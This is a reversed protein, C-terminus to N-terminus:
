VVQFALLTLDDAPNLSGDRTDLHLSIAEIMADLELSKWRHLEDTFVPAGDNDERQAVLADELGDTYYLVKDGPELRVTQEFFESALDPLGILGGGPKLEEISGDAGVRLPYPHGGRALRLERRAVDVVGYVATVYQSHPLQQRAIDAHLGALVECPSIVDYRRGVIRKPVLARRVFMTMLAASTGHGMVDGLFLGIHGEDIRFVDYLDGSVWSAPRYLVSFKLGKQEPLQRPLFDRQLRGALRMEQDIEGFFRNLHLSLRQLHTLEDDLRRVLSAFHAMTTLRGAIEDASASSSAQEVLPGAPAACGDAGWVLLAMRRANLEEAVRDLDLAPTPTTEDLVLVAADASPLDTLATAPWAVNVPAFGRGRIQEAVGRSRAPAADLVLINGNPIM